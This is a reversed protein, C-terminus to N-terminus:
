ISSAAREPSMILQTYRDGDFEHGLYGGEIRQVAGKVSM